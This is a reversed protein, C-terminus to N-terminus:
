GGRWGHTKGTRQAGDSVEEVASRQRRRDGFNGELFAHTRHAALSACPWVFATVRELALESAVLHSAPWSSFLHAKSHMPIWSIASCGLLLCSSQLSGCFAGCGAVSWGRRSTNGGGAFGECGSCPSDLGACVESSGSWRQREKHSARKSVTIRHLIYNWM